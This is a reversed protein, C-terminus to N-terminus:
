DIQKKSIKRLNRVSQGRDVAVQRLSEDCADDAHLAGRNQGM